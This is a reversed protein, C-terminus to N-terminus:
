FLLAFLEFLSKTFIDPLQWQLQSSAIHARRNREPMEDARARRANWSTVASQTLPLRQLSHPRAAPAPIRQERRVASAEWVSVRELPRWVASVPFLPFSSSGDWTRNSAGFWLSYRLLLAKELNQSFQNSIRDLKVLNSPNKIQSIEISYNIKTDGAWRHAGITSEKKGMDKKEIVYKLLWSLNYIM